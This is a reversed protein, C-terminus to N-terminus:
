WSMMFPAARAAGTTPVTDGRSVHPLVRLVSKGVALLSRYAYTMYAYFSLSQKYEPTWASRTRAGDSSQEAPVKCLPQSTRKQQSSPNEDQSPKERLPIMQFKLNNGKSRKQVAKGVSKINKEIVAYIKELSQTSDEEAGSVVVKVEYQKELLKIMKKVGTMLDNEAIRTSLTILKQGKTLENEKKVQKEKRKALEEEHYQANTLLKYVPRRTKTDIDQIKVLKLERRLSISQASKLDTISVSNDSGILTIRNETNKTKPVDKGEATIRTTISRFDVLRRFNRLAFIKNM